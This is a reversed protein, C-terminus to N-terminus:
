GARQGTKAPTKADARNQQQKEGRQPKSMRAPKPRRKSKREAGTASARPMRPLTGALAAVAAKLRPSSSAHVYGRTTELDSHRGAEAVAYLDGSATLLASLYSHRLDYVRATDLRTAEDHRGKKRLQGQIVKVARRWGLRLTGRHWPGMHAGIRFLERMAAAGQPTLPVWGADVGAGKRRPQIYIEPPTREWRVHQPEVQSLIATPQGTWLLAALRARTLSPQDRPAGPKAKAQTAVADLIQMALRLDIARDRRTRSPRLRRIREVAHVSAHDPAIRRWLVRLASIRKNIRSVSDEARQWREIVEALEARKLAQLIKDGIEAVWAALLSLRDEKFRGAPLAELYDHAARRVTGREGSDPLTDELEKIRDDLEKRITVKDMGFPYRREERHGRVNVVGAIGYRDRYIGKAIRIRKGRSM